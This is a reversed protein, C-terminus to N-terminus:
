PNAEALARTLEAELTKGRNFGRTTILAIGERARLLEASDIGRLLALLDLRDQPRRGDDRSLVKLAVLHGRQAVDVELGAVIALPSASAVIEPELGSSAFLLDLIAEPRGVNPQSLRVTALRGNAEPELAALPVYGRAQLARVIAEAEGDSDVAVALDVDRTFRPETRASVALGGILAFRARVSSLDVVASRLAKEAETM